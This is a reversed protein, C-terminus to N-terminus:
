HFNFRFQTGLVKIDHFTCVTQCSSTRCLVINKSLFVSRFRAVCAVAETQWLSKQTFSGLLMQDELVAEVLDSSEGLELLM